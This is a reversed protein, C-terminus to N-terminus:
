HSPHLSARARGYHEAAQEQRSDELAMGALARGTLYPATGRELWAELLSKAEGRLAARAEGSSRAAAARLASVEDGPLRLLDRDLQDFAASTRRFSALAEKLALLELAEGAGRSSEVAQTSAVLQKLAALLASEGRGVPGARGVLARCEDRKVQTQVIDALRDVLMFGLNHRTRVYREGPNGLGVVLWNEESLLNM